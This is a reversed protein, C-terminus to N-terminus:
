KIFTELLLKVAYWEPNIIYAIVNSISILVGLPAAIWQVIFLVAVETASSEDLDGFTSTENSKYVKKIFVSCMLIVVVMFIAIITHQIALVLTQRMALEFAKTALIEGTKLLQNILAEIYQPDM